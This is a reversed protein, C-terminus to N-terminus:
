CLHLHSVRSIPHLALFRASCFAPIMGAPLEEASASVGEVKDVVEVEVVESAGFDWSM